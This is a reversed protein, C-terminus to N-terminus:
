RCHVSRHYWNSPFAATAREVTTRVTEMIRKRTKRDDPLLMGNFFGRLSEQSGWSYVSVERPSGIPLIAVAHRM